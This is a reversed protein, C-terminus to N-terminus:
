STTKIELSYVGNDESYAVIQGVLPVQKDADTNTVSVADGETTKATWAGGSKTAGYRLADLQDDSDFGSKKWDDTDDKDIDVNRTSGDTAWNWEM